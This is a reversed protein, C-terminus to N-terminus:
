IFLEWAELIELIELFNPHGFVLNNVKMKGTFVNFVFGRPQGLPWTTLNM